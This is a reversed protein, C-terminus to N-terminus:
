SPLTYKLDLILIMFDYVNKMWAPRSLISMVYLLVLFKGNTRPPLPVAVGGSFSSAKWGIQQDNCFNWGDLSQNEHKMYMKFNPLPYTYPRFIASTSLLLQNQHKQHFFEWFDGM